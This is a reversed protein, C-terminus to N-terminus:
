RSQHEERMVKGGIGAMDGTIPCGEKGMVDKCNKKLEVRCDSISKDSRLCTAMKEHVSALKDRQEPTIEKTIKKDSKTTETTTEQAFSGGAFLSTLIVGSLILTKM